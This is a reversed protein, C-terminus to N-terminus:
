VGGMERDGCRYIIGKQHLFQLGCVIEAAYFRSSVVCVCVTDQSKQSCGRSRGLDEETGGPVPFAACLKVSLRPRMLYMKHRALLPQYGLCSFFNLLFFSWLLGNETRLTYANICIHRHACVCNLPAHLNLPWGGPDQRSCSGWRASAWPPSLIQCIVLSPEWGCSVWWGQSGM